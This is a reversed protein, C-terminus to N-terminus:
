DVFEADGDNIWVTSGNPLEVQIFDPAWQESIQIAEFALPGKVITGFYVRECEENEYGVDYDGSAQASLVTHFAELYRCGIDTTLVKGEGSRPEVGSLAFKLRRETDLVYELDPSGGFYEHGLLLLDGPLIQVEQLLEIGAEDGLRRVRDVWETFPGSQSYGYTQFSETEKFGQFEDFLQRFTSAAESLEASCTTPALSAALTAACALIRM